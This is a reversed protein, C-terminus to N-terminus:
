FYSSQQFTEDNIKMYLTEFHEAPSM